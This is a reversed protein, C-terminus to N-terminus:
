AAALPGGRVAGLAAIFEGRRFPKSLTAVRPGANHFAAVGEGLKLLAHGFGSMLVIRAPVDCLLIENLVDIGDKGPMLIDLVVVDPALALFIETAQESGSLTRVEWGAGEAIRQMVRLLGEQDDIILLKRAM